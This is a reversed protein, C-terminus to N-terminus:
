DETKIINAKRACLYLVAMRIFVGNTVQDLILNPGYAIDADLEVGRNIPGPHLIVADKKLLHRNSKNLGFLKSFEQTSPFYNATQREQQIRLLIVIDADSVAEERNHSITVGYTKFYDPVLTRPGALTINAGLKNLLLINSRAVRSFLIDGIITVNMGELNDRGCHELISFSDLLAQTPHEHPGDGANIVPIDIIKSLYAASGASAHRMVILDTQLAKLNLATDRLSEGKTFSSTSASLSLCNAGLNQAAVEFALKTRTSPEIFLNCVNKNRLFDLTEGTETYAKKFSSAHDFITRIDAISLQEIGILDKHEWSNETNKM